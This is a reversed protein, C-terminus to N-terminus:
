AGLVAFGMVRAAQALRLDFTILPLTGPGLREIAALHLADLTRTGTEAGIRAARRCLTDDVAVVSLRSWDAEFATMARGYAATATRRALAIAVEVFAHQATVWAPDGLLFAEARDSDPEDVYRKVLVSSDVYISADRDRRILETTDPTGPLPPVRVVATPASGSGPRIWGEEIGREINGMGPEPTIRAVRRGRNTVRIVEGREVRELYESLHAKLDRIPVDMYDSYVVM